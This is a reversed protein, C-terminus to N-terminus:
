AVVAPFMKSLKEHVSVIHEDKLESQKGAGGHEKLVEKIKPLADDGEIKYIDNILERLTDRTVAPLPAPPAEETAKPKLFNPVEAPETAEPATEEATKKKGTAKKAPAPTDTAPAPGKEAVVSPSGTITEAGLLTRMQAQVERASEGTVTITIPM